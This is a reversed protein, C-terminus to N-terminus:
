SSHHQAAPPPIGRNPNAGARGYRSRWGSNIMAAGRTGTCRIPHRGARDPSGSYGITWPAVV